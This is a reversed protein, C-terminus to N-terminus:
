IICTKKDNKKKLSVAVVSIQVIRKTPLTLHTYSVAMILEILFKLIEEDKLGLVQSLYSIKIIRYTKIIIEIREMAILKLLQQKFKCIFTDPTFQEQFLKEFKKLDKNEYFYRLNQVNIMELDTQFQQAEQSHFINITSHLLISCITIYKLMEKAKGPNTLSQYLRFAEVLDEQAQKYQHDLMM